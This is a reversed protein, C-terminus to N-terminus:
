QVVQKPRIAQWGNVIWFDGSHSWAIYDATFRVFGGDRYDRGWSNVINFTGDIDYGCICLAHGGVLEARDSPRQITWPGQMDLFSAALDTGFVVPMGEALASRIKNLRIDGVGDIRQYYGGSRPYAQMYSEPVPQKNLAGLDYPWYKESPAGLRQLARAASRLYTGGDNREDGTQARAAYYLFERSIPDYPLKAMTELIQIAYAWAHAVCSSAQGQDLIESVYPRLDVSAPLGGTRPVALFRHDRDDKPDRLYGMGPRAVGSKRLMRQMWKKV